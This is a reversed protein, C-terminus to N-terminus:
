EDMQWNWELAQRDKRTNRAKFWDSEFGTGRDVGDWKHGPRIGYRNPPASGAYLPRGTISTKVVKVGKKGDTKVPVTELQGAMPDGWVDRERLEANMQVDEAGRAFPMLKADELEQRREERQVRQVDGRAAEERQRKKVQAAEAAVRAEARKMAINVVRGSADRYITEGKGKGGVEMEEDEEEEEQRRYSAMQVAMHAASQLGAHAGNSMRMTEGVVVVAPANSDAGDDDEAAVRAAKEAEASRIIAEAEAAASM